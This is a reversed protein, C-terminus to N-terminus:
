RKRDRDRPDAGMGGFPEGCGHSLFQGRPKLHGGRAHRPGTKPVEPSVARFYIELFDPRTGAIATQVLGLYAWVWACWLCMKAIIPQESHPGLLLPARTFKRYVEPFPLSDFM